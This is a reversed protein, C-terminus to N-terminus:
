SVLPKRRARKAAESIITQAADLLIPRAWSAMDQGSLRMAEAVVEKQEQTVPVRLDKAKRDEKAKPPRGRGNSM